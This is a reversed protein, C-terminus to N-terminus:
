VVPEGGVRDAGVRAIAHARSCLRESKRHLDGHELANKAPCPSCLPFLECTDCENTTFSQALVAPLAEEWGQRFTGTKLSYGPDRLLICVNMDGYPGIHFGYHGARCRFLKQRPPYKQDLVGDWYKQHAEDQWEIAVCEDDTLVVDEPIPEGGIRGFIEGNFRFTCGLSEALDRLAPLDDANDRVLMTKLLVSLGAEKLMRVGRLSKEFMRERQTVRRTTEESAGYLSVEVWVPPREALERVIEDTMLSANTFVSVVFGRERAGRYIETFDPRLLPEGGSLQLNLCEAEVLQDFIGIWEAATLEEEDRYPRMYCHRCAFNCRATLDLSGSFPHRGTGVIRESLVELGLETIDHECGSM